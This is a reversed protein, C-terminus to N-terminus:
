WLTSCRIMRTNGVVYALIVWLVEISPSINRPRASFNASIQVLPRHGARYARAVISSKVWLGGDTILSIVRRPLDM